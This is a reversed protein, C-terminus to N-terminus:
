AAMGIPNLRAEVFALASAAARRTDGHPDAAAMRRLFPLSRGADMSILERMVHWRVFFDQHDLLGAAVPFADSRGLSRLLTVIMQIRSARDDVASCGVYTHGIADYEVALPAQDLRISAQLMVMNTAAYEIVYSERRGDFIVIEGDEIRREGTRRCRGADAANFSADIPPAEWFSLLAGGSRIFKIITAQGTFGISVPGRPRGKKAALGDVRIASLSVSAAEDDFLMLGSHIDSKLAAFPPVVFADDALGSSLTEILGDAWHTDEFLGRFAEIAAEASPTPLDALARAFSTRVNGLRWQRGLADASEVAQRQRERNGLWRSLEPEIIM